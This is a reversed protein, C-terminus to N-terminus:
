RLRIRKSIPDVLAEAGVRNGAENWHTDEPLYLRESRETRERMEHLVDVMEIGERAGFEHLRRQPFELDFAEAQIGKALVISRFLNADVQFEDPIVLVLFDIGDGHLVDRIKRM